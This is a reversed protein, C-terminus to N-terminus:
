NPYLYLTAIKPFYLAWQQKNDELGQFCLGYKQLQERYQRAQQELFSTLTENEEPSSTKYDVIWRIEDKLFTRDVIFHKFGEESNDARNNKYYALALECRSDKLQSDFIWINKSDAFCNALILETQQIANALQEKNLIGLNQLQWRWNNHYHNFNKHDLWNKQKQENSGSAFQKLCRHM